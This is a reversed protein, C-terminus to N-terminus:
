ASVSRRRYSKPNMKVLEALPNRCRRAVSVAGRLSVDLDPVGASGARFGLLGSAGAESVIM